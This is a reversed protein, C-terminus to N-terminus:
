QDTSLTPLVSDVLVVWMLSSLTFGDVVIVMLGAEGSPELPQRTEAVM